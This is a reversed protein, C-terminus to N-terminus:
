QAGSPTSIRVRSITYRLAAQKKQYHSLSAEKTTHKNNHSLEITLSFIKRKQLEKKTENLAIFDAGADDIYKNPLVQKASSMGTVNLQMIYAYNKNAM